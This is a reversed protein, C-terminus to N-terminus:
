PSPPPQAARMSRVTRWWAVQAKADGLLLGREVQWFQRSMNRATAESRMAEVAAPDPAPGCGVVYQRSSGKGSPYEYPYKTGPM